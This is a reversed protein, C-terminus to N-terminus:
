ENELGLPYNNNFGQEKNDLRELEGTADEVWPHKGVLTEKSLYTSMSAIQAQELENVMRNFNFTIEVESVDGKINNFEFVFWILKQLAVYTKRALKNAKLDLSSYMFKLAVGSPANGFKDQKFDIAQGSEIATERLQKIWEKTEEVPIDIKLTDVDGDTDLAIVRYYKLTENFKDIDEEPYGRLLMIMDASEDFTNQMDSIRKDMADVLSKYMTLDSLQQTNNKFAVFPVKGWSGNDYHTQIFDGHYYDPKLGGDSKVFYYVHKETWYEVKTEDGLKYVRIFASLEEQENNKWIPIAQEAPIHYVQLESNENVYVQVWSVGKNSADTLIDVLKDDFKVNFLQHLAEKVKDNEHKITIPNGVLYSVKQDVACQHFNVPIKWDPKRTNTNGSADLKPSKRTIDSDHNYYKAGELYKPINAQHAEIKEEIIKALNGNLANEPNIDDM